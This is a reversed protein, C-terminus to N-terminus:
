GLGGEDESDYYDVQVESAEPKKELVNCRWVYTKNIFNMGVAVNVLEGTDPDEHKELMPNLVYSGATESLLLGEIYPPMTNTGETQPVMFLRVWVPQAQKQEAM